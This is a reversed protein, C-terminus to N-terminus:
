VCVAKAVQGVDPTKAMSTDATVPTHMGGHQLSAPFRFGCSMRQVLTVLWCLYRSQSRPAPMQGTVFCEM